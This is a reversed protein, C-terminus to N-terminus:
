HLTLCSRDHNLEFLDKRSEEGLWWFEFHNPPSFYAISFAGHSKM